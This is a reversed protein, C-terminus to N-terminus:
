LTARTKHKRHNFCAKELTLYKKIKVNASDSNHTCHGTNSIETTEHNRAAVM